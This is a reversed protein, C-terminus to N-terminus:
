GLHPVGQLADALPVLLRQAPEQGPVASVEFLDDLQAHVRAQAGPDLRAVWASQRATPWSAARGSRDEKARASCTSPREREGLRLSM